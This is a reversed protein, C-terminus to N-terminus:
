GALRREKKQVNATTERRRQLAAERATSDMEGYINYVVYDIVDIIEGDKYVNPHLDLMVHLALRTGLGEAIRSFAQYGSHACARLKGVNRSKRVVRPHRRKRKVDRNYVGPYTFQPIRAISYARRPRALRSQTQPFELHEM